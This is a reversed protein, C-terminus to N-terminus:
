FRDVVLRFDDIALGHDFSLHNRVTWRLWLRSGAKWPVALRGGLAQRALPDRGYVAQGEPTVLQPSPSAFDFGAGPRIWDVHGFAEGVGYEFDLTNLDDSAGQRWQQGDFAVAVERVDARSANRFSVAIYGAVQGNAPTGFYSGGTGVAGLARNADGELGFSYFSGGASSGDGGRYTPTVLAQEVFNLLRWGPLTQNDRWDHSRSSHGLANFDQRYTFRGSADPAVAIDARAPLAAGLLALALLGAPLCTM